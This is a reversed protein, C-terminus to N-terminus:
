KKKGEPETIAVKKLARALEKEQQRRQRIEERLEERPRTVLPGTTMPVGSEALDCDQSRRHHHHHRHHGQSHRKHQHHRHQSEKKEKEKEKDPVTKPKSSAETRTNVVMSGPVGTSSIKMGIGAMASSTQPKPAYGALFAREAPYLNQQLLPYECLAEPVPKRIKLFVHTQPHYRSSQAECIECLDYDPCNRCM